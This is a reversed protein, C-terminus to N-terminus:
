TKGNLFGITGGIIILALKKQYDDSELLQAESPNSLFGCEVLIGPCEIQNMLYISEPIKVATDRKGAKTNEFFLQQIYNGLEQSGETNAFFVQGGYPGASTFKNQHISILLANDVSGILEVRNKQDAVKRERITVADEPYAIEASNRTMVPTYGFFASFQEAKQAISLNITSEFTGTVSVAGGDEGGHGPDIILTVGNGTYGQLAVETDVESGSGPLYRYAYVFTSLFVLVILFFSILVKAWFKIDMM